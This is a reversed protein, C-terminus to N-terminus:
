AFAGDVIAYYRDAEDGQRVVATGEAVPLRPLGQALGELAPVPLSRFIRLSRLLAIEVVPVTAAADLRLLRPLRALVAVPV